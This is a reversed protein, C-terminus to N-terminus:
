LLHMMLPWTQWKPFRPRVKELLCRITTSSHATHYHCDYRLKLCTGRIAAHYWDPLQNSPFPQPCACQQRLGPSVHCTRSDPRLLYPTLLPFPKLKYRPNREKNTNINKLRRLVRCDCDENYGKSEKLWLGRTWVEGARVDAFLLEQSRVERLVNQSPTPSGM